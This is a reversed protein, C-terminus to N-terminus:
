NYAVTVNFTGSYPNPAQSVGVHLTAGVLLTQAGTVDLAGTVAPISVFTDVVMPAGAAAALTISTPLTIAYTNSPAGTVAFSSAAPVMGNGLTVGGASSRVGATSVTVTGIVITPVIQGFELGVNNSISLASVIEAGAYSGATGSANGVGASLLGLSAALAACIVVNKMPKGKEQQGHRARAPDIGSHADIVPETQRGAGCAALPAHRWM